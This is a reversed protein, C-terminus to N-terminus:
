DIFGAIEEATIGRHFCFERVGDKFFMLAMNDETSPNEYVKQGLFVLDFRDVKFSILEEDKFFDEFKEGLEERFKVYVPNNPLYMRTARVTKVLVLVVDRALPVFRKIREDQERAEEESLAPGTWEEM